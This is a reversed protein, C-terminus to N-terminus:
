DINIDFLSKPMDPNMQIYNWKTVRELSNDDLTYGSIQYFAYTEEDIEVSFSRIEYPIWFPWEFDDANQGIEDFNIEWTYLIGDNTETPGVSDVYNNLSKGTMTIDMEVASTLTRVDSIVTSNMADIQYTGMLGNWLGLEQKVDIEEGAQIKRILEKMKEAQEKEIRKKNLMIMSNLNKQPIVNEPTKFTSELVDTLTFDYNIGYKGSAINPINLDYNIDWKAVSDNTQTDWKATIDWSIPSANEWMKLEGSMIMEGSNTDWLISGNVNIKANGTIGYDAQSFNNHMELNYKETELKANIDWSLEVWEFMMLDRQSIEEPAIFSYDWIIELNNTTGSMTMNSDFNYEPMDIDVYWNINEGIQEILIGSWTIAENKVRMYMKSSESETLSVTGEFWTELEISIEEDKPSKVISDFVYHLKTTNLEIYFNKIEHMPSKLFKETITLYEEDSCGIFDNKFIEYTLPEPEPRRMSGFQLWPNTDEVIETETKRNQRILTCIAKSPVLHYKTEEQKYAELIPENKLFDLVLKQMEEAESGQSKMQAELISYIFNESLDIYKGSEWLKNVTMLVEKPIIDQGLSETDIDLENAMIYSGSANTILHGTELNLSGWTKQWFIQAEGTIELWKLLLDLGTQNYQLDINEFSMSGNWGGFSSNAEVNIWMNWKIRQSQSKEVAQEYAEELENVIDKQYTLIKDNVEDLTYTDSYWEEFIGMISDSYKYGAFSAGGILSIAVVPVLIKKSFGKM